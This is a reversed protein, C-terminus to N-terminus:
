APPGRTRWGASEGARDLEIGVVRRRPLVEPAGELLRPRGSSAPGAHRDPMSAASRRPSACAALTMRTHSRRRSRRAAAFEDPGGPFSRLAQSGRRAVEGDEGEFGRRCEPAPAPRPERPRGRARRGALGNRNDPGGPRVAGRSTDPIRFGRRLAAVRFRAAPTPPSHDFDFCELVPETRSRHEVQRGPPLFPHASGRRRGKRSPCSCGAEGGRLPRRVAPGPGDPDRALIRAARVGDARSRKRPRVTPSSRWVKWRSSVSFTKSLTRRARRSAPRGSSRARQRSTSSASPTASTARARGEVRDCPCACRTASARATTLRRRGDDEGVLRGGAEVSSLQSRTAASMSASAARCPAVRTTAVCSERSWPRKSRRRTSSAPPGASHIREREPEAGDRATGRGATSVTRRRVRPIAITIVSSRKWRSSSSRSPRSARPMSRTTPALPSRAAARGRTRTGCRRGSPSRRGRRAGRCRAGDWSPPPSGARAPPHTGRSGCRRCTGRSRAGSSRPARPPGDRPVSWPPRRPTGPGGAPRAKAGPIGEDSGVAELTFRPEVVPVMRVPQDPHQLPGSRDEVAEYEDVARRHPLNVRNVASGSGRRCSAAELGAAADAAAGAGAIGAAATVVVRRAPRLRGATRLGAPRVLARLAM